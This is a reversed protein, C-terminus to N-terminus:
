FGCSRRCRCTSPITSIRVTVLGVSALLRQRQATSRPTTSTLSITSRAPTSTPAFARRDRAAHRVQQVRSRFRRGPERAAMSVTPSVYRFDIDSRHWGLSGYATVQDFIDVEGQVM